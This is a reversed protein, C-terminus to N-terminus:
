LGAILCTSFHIWKEAHYQGDMVGFRDNGVSDVIQEFNNGLDRRVEFQKDDIVRRGVLGFLDNMVQQGTIWLQAHQTQVRPLTSITCHVGPKSPHAAFNDYETFIICRDAGIFDVTEPLQAVVVLQNDCTGFRCCVSASRVVRMRCSVVLVSLESAPGTANLHDATSGDLTKVGGLARVHEERPSERERALFRMTMDPLLPM